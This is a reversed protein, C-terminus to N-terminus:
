VLQNFSGRYALYGCTTLVLVQETCVQKSSHCSYVSLVAHLTKTLSCLYCKFSYRRINTKLKWVQKSPFEALAPRVPNKSRELVIKGRALLSCLSDQFKNAGFRSNPYYLCELLPMLPLITHKCKQQWLHQEGFESPANQTRLINQYKNMSYYWSGKM